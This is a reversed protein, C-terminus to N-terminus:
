NENSTVNESRMCEDVLHEFAKLKTVVDTINIQSDGFIFETEVIGITMYNGNGFREPRRVPLGLETAKTMLLKHYGERAEARIDSPAYCEIKICFKAQEFQLYMKVNDEESKVFHWWAGFFGGSPNAVYDWELKDLCSELEKYFGQWTLADKWEKMPLERFLNTSKELTQLHTTFDYVATNDGDYGTLLELIEQRMITKYGKQAITDLIAKPENGTKTYACYITRTGKYEQETTERYRVLQDGHATTFTKDEILLFADDNIEAWIDIGKWQRGVSVKMIEEPKIGTFLHVLSQGLKCLKCDNEMNNPDAWQLLWSLFADQSLESTAFSFLNPSASTNSKQRTKLLERLANIRPGYLQLSEQIFSMLNEKDEESGNEKEGLGSEQGNIVALFLRTLDLLRWLPLEESQRSWKDGKKAWRWIKASYDSYGEERGWSSEGISLLKADGASGDQSEYDVYVIPKHKLWGGLVRQNQEKDYM